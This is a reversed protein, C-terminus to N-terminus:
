AHESYATGFNSVSSQFIAYQAVPSPLEIRYSLALGDSGIDMQAGIKQLRFQIVMMGMTDFYEEFTM